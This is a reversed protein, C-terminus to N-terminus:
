VRAVTWIGLVLYSLVSTTGTNWLGIFNNLNALRFVQRQQRRQKKWARALIEGKETGRSGGRIERYPM